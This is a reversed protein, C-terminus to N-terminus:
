AINALIPALFAAFFAAVATPHLFVVFFTTFDLLFAAAFLSFGVVFFSTLLILGNTFDWYYDCYYFNGVAPEFGATGDLVVSGVADPGLIETAVSLVVAFADLIADDDLFSSDTATSVGLLTSSFASSRFDALSGGSGSDFVAASHLASLKTEALEDKIRFLSGVSLLSSLASCCCFSAVVTVTYGM